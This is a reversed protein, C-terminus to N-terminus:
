RPMSPKICLYALCNHQFNFLVKSLSIYNILQRCDIWHLLSNVTIIFLLEIKQFLTLKSGKETLSDM